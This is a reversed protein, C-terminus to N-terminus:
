KSINKDTKKIEKKNMETKKHKEDSEKQVTDKKDIDKTGGDKTPQDGDKPMAELPKDNVGLLTLRIPPGLPGDQSHVVLTWVGARFGERREAVLQTRTSKGVKGDLDRMNLTQAIQLQRPPSVPQNIVQQQVSSKGKDAIEKNAKAKAAQESNDKVFDVQQAFKFTFRQEAKAPIRPLQLRVLVRWSDQRPQLARRAIRVASANQAYTIAPAAVFTTAAIAFGLVVLVARYRCM